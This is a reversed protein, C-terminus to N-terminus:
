QGIELCVNQQSQATVSSLCVTTLLMEQIMHMVMVLM